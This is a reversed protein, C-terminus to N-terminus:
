QNHIMDKIRGIDLRFTEALVCWIWWEPINHIVIAASELDSRVTKDDWGTADAIEEFTCQFRRLELFKIQRDTCGAKFAGGKIESWLNEFLDAVPDLHGVTADFVEELSREGARRMDREALYHDSYAPYESDQAAKAQRLLRNAQRTLERESEM